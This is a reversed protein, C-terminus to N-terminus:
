GQSRETAWGDHEIRSITIVHDPGSFEGHETVLTAIAGGPVPELRIHLAGDASTTEASADPTPKRALAEGLLDLFLDFAAADLSGLEALRLPRGRALVSRAREVQTAEEEALRALVAKEASRDIVPAAAGRRGHWGTRRLRPTVYLPEAALWSTRHGDRRAEAAALTEANTRLHRASGLGFAARWLRHLDGESPATAFWLALAQFDAARDTRRTRRDNLNAITTLLAPVAARARARLLEAQSYGEDGAIFWRRLGAWRLRWGRLAAAQDDETPAFADALEHRAVAALAEELRPSELDRLEGAIQNTCVVLEGIFRELYDILADKYDLFRELALGHLETPAQLARLFSQARSTLEEFRETLNRMVDHLKSADLPQEGLLAGFARLLRLIDHLATAQLEGPSGLHRAFAALAEEAAEGEPTFQYILRQRYFDEVTAVDANDRSAVLNRWAVL